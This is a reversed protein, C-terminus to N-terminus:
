RSLGFLGGILLPYAGLYCADAWSPFPLHGLTLTDYMATLDGLAWFGLGGALVYWLKADAPQRRRINVVAWVVSTSSALSTIVARLDDSPTAVYIVCALVGAM